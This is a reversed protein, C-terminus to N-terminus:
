APTMTFSPLGPVMLPMSQMEDGDLADPNRHRHSSRQRCVVPAASVHSCMEQVGAAFRRNPSSSDFGLTEMECGYQSDFYRPLEMGSTILSRGGIRRLISTARHRVTVTGIGISGGLTRALCYTALVIRLAEATNRMAPALAWGGVEAYALGRKRALSIDSEVAARFRRGWTACNALACNAVGLDSFSVSNSHALYRSCGYVQNEHDLLLVHWARKDAAQCHCGDASLQFPQIAGEGLYLEGRFRQVSTLLQQHAQTDDLVNMFRPPVGSDAPAILVLKGRRSNNTPVIRMLFNERNKRKALRKRCATYIVIVKAPLQLLCFVAPLFWLSNSAWISFFADNKKDGM